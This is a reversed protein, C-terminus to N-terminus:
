QVESSRQTSPFRLARQRLQVMKARQAMQMSPIYGGRRVPFFHNSVPPQQYSPLEEANPCWWEGHKAADGHVYDCGAAGYREIAVKLMQPLRRRASVVAPVLGPPLEGGEKALFEEPTEGPNNVLDAYYRGEFDTISEWVEDDGNKPSTKERSGRAFVAGIGVGHLSRHQLLLSSAPAPSVALQSVLLAAVAVSAGLTWRSRWM